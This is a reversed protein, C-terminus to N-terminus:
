LKWNIIWLCKSLTRLEEEEENEQDEEQVVEYVESEAAKTHWFVFAKGGVWVCVAM